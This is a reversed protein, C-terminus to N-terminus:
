LIREPNSEEGGIVLVFLCIAGLGVLSPSHSRWCGSLECYNGDCNQRSHDHSQITGGKLILSYGTMQFHVM